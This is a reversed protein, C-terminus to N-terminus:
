PENPSKIRSLKIRVEVIAGYNDAMNSLQFTADNGYILKLRERLNSLGIHRRGDRYIERDHLIADMVADSFGKGTDSVCCYLWTENDMVEKTLFLSVEVPRGYIANHQISNEVLTQLMLKPIFYDLLDEDVDITCSFADGYRKHQLQIYLKVHNIEESIKRLNATPGFLYRIYGSLDELLETIEWNSDRDALSHVLSLCNLFFHPRVQEQLLELETQKKTIEQEYLAIRMDKLRHSLTKFQRNITELELIDNEDLRDFREETEVNELGTVFKTFPHFLWRYCLRVVLIVELWLLVMEMNFLGLQFHVNKLIEGDEVKQIYATGLDALPYTYVEAGDAIAQEAQKRYAQPAIVRGDNWRLFSIVSYSKPMDNIEAFLQNLDILCALMIEKQRYWGLIYAEEGSTLIEWCVQTSLNDKQQRLRQKVQGTIGFDDTSAFSLGTSFALLDSAPWYLFSQKLEPYRTKLSGVLDSAMFLVDYYGGDRPSINQPIGPLINRLNNALMLFEQNISQIKRNINKVYLIATEEIYQNEVARLTRGLYLHIVSFILFLGLFLVSFFRLLVRLKKKKYIKVVEM